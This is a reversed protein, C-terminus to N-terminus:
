TKEKFDHENLFITSKKEVEGNNQFGSIRIIYKNKFIAKDCICTCIM